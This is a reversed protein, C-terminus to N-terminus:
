FVQRVAMPQQLVIIRMLAERRAEVEARNSRRRIRSAPYAALSAPASM